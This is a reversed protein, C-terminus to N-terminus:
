TPSPASFHRRLCITRNLDISGTLKFQHFACYSRWPAPFHPDSDLGTTNAVGVNEGNFSNQWFALIRSNRAMFDDSFNIGEAFAYRRPGDTLAHRDPIQATRTEAALWASPAIEYTAQVL